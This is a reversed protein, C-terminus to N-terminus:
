SNHPDLALRIKRIICQDRHIIGDADYDGGNCFLCFARFVDFPNENNLKDMQDHAEQLLGRYSRWDAEIDSSGYPM